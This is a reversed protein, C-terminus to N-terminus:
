GQGIRKEYVMFHRGPKYYDQVALNGEVEITKGIKESINKFGMKEFLKQSPINVPDITAEIRTFGKKELKEEVERLLKKGIGKGQHPPNVGIQWLFCTGPFSQPVIGMVFGLIQGNEEGIFCYDGFYRLIIKYVHEPYNESPLCVATFKHIELFDEQTATRIKM